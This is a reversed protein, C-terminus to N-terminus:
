EARNGCGITRRAFFDLLLPLRPGEPHGTLHTMFIHRRRALGPGFGFMGNLGYMYHPNMSVGTVTFYSILEPMLFCCRPAMSKATHNM